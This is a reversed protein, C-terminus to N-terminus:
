WDGRRIKRAISELATDELYELDGQCIGEFREKMYAILEDDTIEDLCENKYLYFIEQLREITDVYNDQYIYASDCFAYILKTLIGEGFEIRGERKLSEKREVLLEQAEQESLRLGFKTTYTNCNMLNEKQKQLVVEQNGQQLTLFQMLEEDKM